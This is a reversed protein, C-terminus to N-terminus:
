KKFYLIHLEPCSPAHKCHCHAPLHSLLIVLPLELSAQVVCLESVVLATYYSGVEFCVFLVDFRLQCESPPTQAMVTSDVHSETATHVSVLGQTALHNSQGLVKPKCGEALLFCGLAMKLIETYINKFQPDANYFNLLNVKSYYNEKFSFYQIESKLGEGNLM